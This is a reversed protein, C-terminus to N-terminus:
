QDKSEPSEAAEERDAQERVADFRQQMRWSFTAARVRETDELSAGLAGAFTAVSAAVWAATVYNTWDVPKELRHALLDSPMFVVTELLLVLYVIVYAMAVGTGVTVATTANYLTTLYPSSDRTRPRWLEHAIIIWASLVTIALLSLLLLRVSESYEGLQWISSFILGYSGTGITTVATTRLSPLISWPKNALVMGDVLRATALPGRAVYETDVAEDAGEGGTTTVYGPALHPEDGERHLQGVLQSVVDRTRARIRFVGLAPISVWGVGLERSADAIVIHGDRRVPLDTLAIVYDWQAAEAMRSIARLLEESSVDSGTVPDPVVHVSWAVSADVQDRLTDALDPAMGNAIDEPLGYSPVLGVDRTQGTDGADAQRTEASEIAERTASAPQM